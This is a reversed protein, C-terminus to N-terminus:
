TWRAPRTARGLGRSAALSLGYDHCVVAGSPLRGWNEPKIDTLWVPIRKPLDRRLVPYTRAMVLFNGSHSIRICPALWRKLTPAEMVERWLQWEAVNQFRHNREGEVKIVWDDNAGYVYVKRDIGGGLPEGIILDLGEVLLSRSLDAQWNSEM